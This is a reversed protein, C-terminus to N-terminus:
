CTRPTPLSKKTMCKHCKKIRPAFSYVYNGCGAEIMQLEIPPIYVMKPTEGNAFRRAEQIAPEINM